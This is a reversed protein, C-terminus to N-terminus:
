RMDAGREANVGSRSGTGGRTSRDRESSSSIGVEREAGQSAERNVSDEAIQSLLEDAEGEEDLTQQLLDADEDFGLQEAWTRATGYAAIEHHEVAQQAGIIFADATDADQITPLLTQAEEILARMSVCGNAPTNEPGQARRQALQQLRQVHQETQRRHTELANRLEPNRVRQALQPMAQLGQEEADLLLQLKQLYLDTLSTAPMHREKSNSSRRRADDLGGGGGCGRV